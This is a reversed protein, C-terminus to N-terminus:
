CIWYGGHCNVEHGIDEDWVVVSPRMEDFLPLTTGESWMPPAGGDEDRSYCGYGDRGNYGRGGGCDLSGDGGYSTGSGGHVCGDHDTSGTLVGGGAAAVDFARPRGDWDARIEFEVFDGINLDPYGDRRHFYIYGGDNDPTVFGSGKIANFWRVTGKMRESLLDVMAAM